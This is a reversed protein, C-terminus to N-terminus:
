GNNWIPKIRIDYIPLHTLGNLYELDVSVTAGNVLLQGFGDLGNWFITDWLTCGPSGTVNQNIKVDEGSNTGVPAIDITMDIKGAKTVKVLIDVSGDCKSNTVIDCIQGLSGTPYIISDPDNLFIKYEPFDGPWSAQNPTLLSTRDEYWDGTNESGWENCYFIFHGGLWRNINLKTVISDNSLVFFDTQPAHNGIILNTFQWAKSWMRGNKVVNGAYVSADFFEIELGNFNNINGAADQAFELYYDGAITPNLILPTYGTPNVVGFRPGAV